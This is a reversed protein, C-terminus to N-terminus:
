GKEKVSDKQGEIKFISYNGMYLFLIILRVGCHPM